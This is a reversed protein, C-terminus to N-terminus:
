PAETGGSPAQHTWLRRVLEARCVDRDEAKLLRGAGTQLHAPQTLLMLRNLFGAPLGDLLELSLGLRVASLLNMFEQSSLIRAHSLLGFARWVKDNIQSRAENLLTEQADREYEVLRRTLQLLEDVIEEEARGLTAQNSIQFLNGLANTGEGYLGRVAFSMQSLGRMVREMDEALVLAPLHMLVSARLGTGANTPCSTHFGWHDSYAYELASGLADDLADIRGWAQAANLGPLIVQLRLHDEENIMISLTEDEDFLVGRRGRGDALAPSALRREVLLRREDEDLADMQVYTAQELGRSGKAAELVRDIVTARDEESAKLAFPYAALNRALRVRCSLVIGHMDDAGSAWAPSRRVLDKIDM